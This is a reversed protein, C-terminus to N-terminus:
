VVKRKIKSLYYDKTISYRKLEFKDKDLKEEIFPIGPAYIFEGGIMISELIEDYKRLYLKLKDYEYKSTYTIHNSFAANSIVTGWSENEFIFNFWDKKILYKSQKNIMRDIGIVDFNYNRLFEVLNGSQGCGIDIVPEKINKLNLRLIKVQFDPSYEECIVKNIIKHESLYKRIELPYLSSLWVSLKSYHYKYLDKKIDKSKKIIDLSDRYIKKAEEIKAVPINIFQNTKYIERLLENVTFDIIDELDKGYNDIMNENKIEELKSVFSPTINIVDELKYFLLNEQSNSKIQDSIVEKIKNM